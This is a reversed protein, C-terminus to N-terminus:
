AKSSAPKTIPKEDYQALEADIEAARRERGQVQGVNAREAQLAKVHAARREAATTAAQDPLGM